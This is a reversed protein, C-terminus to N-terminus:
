NSVKKMCGACNESGDCGCCNNYGDAHQGSAVMRSAFIQNMKEKFSKADGSAQVTGKPLAMICSIGDWRMGRAKCGAESEANCFGDASMSGNPLNIGVAFKKETATTNLGVTKSTPADDNKVVVKLSSVTNSKKIKKLILISSGIVVIAIGGMVMYDKKDMKSFNTEM